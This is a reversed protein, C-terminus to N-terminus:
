ALHIPLSFTTMLAILHLFYLWCGVKGSSLDILWICSALLNRGRMDLLVGLVNRVDWTLQLTLEGLGLHM